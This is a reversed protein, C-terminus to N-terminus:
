DSVPHIVLNEGTSQYVMVQGHEVSLRLHACSEGDLITKQCRGCLVSAADIVATWVYPPIVIPPNM